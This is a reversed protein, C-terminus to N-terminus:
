AALLRNIRALVEDEGRTFAIVVELAYVTVGQFHGAFQRLKVADKSTVVLTDCSHKRCLAVLRHVDELTYDYHDIFIEHHRLDAGCQLLTRTFAEPSGIASCACVSKRIASLPIRSGTGASLEVLTEPVHATEALLVRPMLRSIEARLAPVREPALDCRTLIVIDARALASFPERLSGCPLLNRDSATELVDLMVIDLNRACAWHQFGDDMLFVDVLHENEALRISEARDASVYVVIGPLSQRFLMVEDSQGDAGPMYGRTLIVPNKHRDRLHGALWIVFPTKGAGGVAINGISIVPISSCFVPFIGNRYAFFVLSVGVGYLWSFPLLLVHLLRSGFSPKQKRLVRWLFDRVSM